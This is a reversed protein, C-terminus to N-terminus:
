GAEDSASQSRCQERAQACDPTAGMAGMVNATSMPRGAPCVVDAAGSMCLGASRMMDTPRRMSVRRRPSMPMTLGSVDM